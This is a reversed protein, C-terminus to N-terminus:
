WCRADVASHTLASALCRPRWCNGTRPKALTRVTATRYTSACLRPRQFASRALPVKFTPPPYFPFSPSFNALLNIPQPVGCVASSRRSRGLRVITPSRGEFFRSAVGDPLGGANPRGRLLECARRTPGDRPWVNRSSKGRPSSFTDPFAGALAPSSYRIFSGCSCPTAFWNPGSDHASRRSSIPSANSLPFDLGAM